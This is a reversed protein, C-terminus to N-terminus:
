QSVPGPLLTEASPFCLLVFSQHPILFTCSYPHKFDATIFHRRRWRGTERVQLSLLRRRRRGRWGGSGTSWWGNDQLNQGQLRTWVSRSTVKKTSETVKTRHNASCIICISIKIYFDLNFLIFDLGRLRAIDRASTLLQHRPEWPWSSFAPLIPRVKTRAPITADSKHPTQSSLVLAKLDSLHLFLSAWSQRCPLNQTSREFNSPRIM